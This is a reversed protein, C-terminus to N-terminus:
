PSVANTRTRHRLTPVKRKSTASGCPSSGGWPAWIVGSQDEFVPEGLIGTLGQRVEGYHTRPRLEPFPSPNQYPLKDLVIWQYGLNRLAAKDPDRIETSNPTSDALDILAKVFTNESRTLQQEKPTFIKNDEIMGGFIPHEHVTQYYLHAQSYGYPLEFVAQRGTDKALCQYVEPVSASWAPMPVLTAVKLDLLWWGATIGILALRSRPWRILREWVAVSLVALGIHVFVMARAPWWLRQMVRIFKVSLLYPVNPIGHWEPGLSLILSPVLLCLGVIRIRRPAFLLGLGGLVMQPRLMAVWEPTFIRTGDPDQVWFGSMRRLPDFALIGVPLGDLTMPSWTTASWLATDFLGPVYASTMMGLAFPAVLLVATAGALVRNRLARPERDFAFVALAAPAALIAYYWYTLGTLALFVGSAVASRWSTGARLFYAWFLLTFVLLAQTPRGDRIVTLIYPNFAFLISAIWASFSSVKFEALLRRMGWINSLLILGIFVNYGVIPGAMVRLPAALAADVVNGGTHSYVEKGWPYFFMSTTAIEDRVLLAHETFWYFWQTGWADVYYRGIYAEDTHGIITRLSFFLMLLLLFLPARRM